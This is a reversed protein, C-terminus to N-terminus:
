SSLITMSDAICLMDLSIHFFRNLDEAREDKVEDVHKTKKARPTGM